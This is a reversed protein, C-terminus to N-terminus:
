GAAHLADPMRLIGYRGYFALLLDVSEGYSQIGSSQSNHKLYADNRKDASQQAKGEFVSWYADYDELDRWIADGYANACDIYRSSDVRYLANGSVILAYILGSYRVNPDASSICALYATFEAENESAIGMQHAMEHAAAQYLLLPPQNVNVNPEATLGIYVGSIGQESLGNSYLVFKARTMDGHFVSFRGSLTRYAKPLADFLERTTEKPAFVGNEDEPLTERLAGAEEATARVYAELEDASKQGVNLEMRESLPVRFYNFGWTLYFLNLVVAATLALSLVSRVLAAFRRKRLIWQLVRTILLIGAFLILGYLILEALSFPLLSTVRSIARRIPQYFGESYVTEVWSQRGTLIRPWCFGLAALIATLIARIFISRWVRRGSTKEM